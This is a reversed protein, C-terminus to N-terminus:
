LAKKLEEVQEPALTLSVVDRGSWRGHGGNKVTITFVVNSRSNSVRERTISLYADDTSRPLPTLSGHIDTQVNEVIFVFM